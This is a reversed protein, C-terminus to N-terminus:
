VSYQIFCYGLLSTALSSVLEGRIELVFDVEATRAEVAVVGSYSTGSLAVGVSEWHVGM